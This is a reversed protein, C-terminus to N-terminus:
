GLPYLDYLIGYGDEVIGCRETTDDADYEGQVVTVVADANPLITGEVMHATPGFLDALAESETDYISVPNVQWMGPDADNKLDNILSLTYANM